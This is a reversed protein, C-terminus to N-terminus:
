NVFRSASASIVKQIYSYVNIERNWGICERERQVASTIRKNLGSTKEVGALLMKGAGHCPYVGAM